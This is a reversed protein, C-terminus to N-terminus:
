IADGYELRDNISEIADVVGKVVADNEIDQARAEEMTKLTQAEKLKGEREMNQLEKQMKQMQIMLENQKLEM